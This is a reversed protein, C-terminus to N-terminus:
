VSIRKYRGREAEVAEFLAKKGRGQTMDEGRDKLSALLTRGSRRLLCDMALCNLMAATAAEKRDITEPKISMKYEVPKGDLGSLEKAEEIAAKMGEALANRASIANEIALAVAVRASEYDRRLDNQQEPCLAGFRVRARVQNLWGGVRAELGQHIDTTVRAADRDVHSYSKLAGVIRQGPGACVLKMATKLAIQLKLMKGFAFSKLKVLLKM